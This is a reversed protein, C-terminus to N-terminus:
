TVTTLTKQIKIYRGVTTTSINLKNAAGIVGDYIELVKKTDYNIRYIKKLTTRKNFIVIQDDHNDGLNKDDSDKSDNYKLLIRIDKDDKDYFTKNFKIYDSIIKPTFNLKESAESLGNYIELIDNSKILIPSVYKNISENNTNILKKYNNYENIIRKNM